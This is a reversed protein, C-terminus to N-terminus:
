VHATEGKFSDYWLLPLFAFSFDSLTLEGIKSIM